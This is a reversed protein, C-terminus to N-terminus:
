NGTLAPLYQGALMEDIAIDCPISGRYFSPFPNIELFYLAPQGSGSVTVLVDVGFLIVRNPVREPMTGEGLCRADSFYVQTLEHLLVELQSVIADRLQNDIFVVEELPLIDPPIGRRRRYATNTVEAAVVGRQYAAPARRVFIPGRRGSTAVNDVDILLYCRLDAKHGDILLPDSLLDQLIVCDEAIPWAASDDPSVIEIGRGGDGFAPKIVCMDTRGALQSILRPLQSPTAVYTSPRPVCRGTAAEYRRLKSEQHHKPGWRRDPGIANTVLGRRSAELLIKDVVAYASREDVDIRAATFRELFVLDSKTISGSNPAYFFLVSPEVNGRFAAREVIGGKVDFKIGCSAVVVDQLFRLDHWHCLLVDGLNARAFATAVRVSTPRVSDLTEVVVVTSGGIRSISNGLPVRVGKNVRFLGM